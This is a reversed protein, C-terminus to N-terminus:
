KTSFVYWNNVINFMASIFFVFYSLLTHSTLWEYACIYNVPYQSTSQELVSLNLDDQGILDRWSSPTSQFGFTLYLKRLLIEHVVTDFAPLLELLLLLTVNGFDPALINDNVAKILVTETFRHKGYASQFEPFLTDQCLYSTIQSAVIRKLPKGSTSM